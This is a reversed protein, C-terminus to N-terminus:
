QQGGGEIVDGGGSMDGIKDLLKSAMFYIPTGIAATKLTTQLTKKIAERRATQASWKAMERLTEAAPPYQRAFDELFKMKAPEAGPKFMNALKNGVVQGHRDLIVDYLEESTTAFKSYGQSIKAYQTDQTNLFDRLQNYIMRATEKEASPNATHVWDKDRLFRGVEVKVKHINKFSSQLNGNADYKIVPSRKLKSVMAQSANNLIKQPQEVPLIKDKGANFFDDYTQSWVKELDKIGDKVTKAKNLAEANTMKTHPQSRLFRDAKSASSFFNKMKSAAASAGMLLAIENQVGLATSIPDSVGLRAYLDRFEGMREGKLGKGAEKLLPIPKFEGEQMKLAVNAAPTFIRETIPKVIPKLTEMGRIDPLIPLVSRAIDYGFEGKTKPESFRKIGELIGGSLSSSDRGGIRKEIEQFRPMVAEQATPMKLPERQPLVSKKVGKVNNYAEEIDQPNPTGEFNIITGDEFKVKAM